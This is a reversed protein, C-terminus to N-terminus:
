VVTSLSYYFVLLFTFVKKYPHIYPTPSLLLTCMLDCKIWVRPQKEICYIWYVFHFNFPYCRIKLNTFNFDSCLLNYIIYVLVKDTFSYNRDQMTFLPCDSRLGNLFKMLIAFIPVRSTWISSNQNSCLLFM